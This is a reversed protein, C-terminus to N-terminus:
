APGTAQPLDFVATDQGLFGIILTDSSYGETLKSLKNTMLDLIYIKPHEAKGDGVIQAMVLAIKRGDPSWAPAGNIGGRLGSLEGLKYKESLNERKGSMVDQIYINM